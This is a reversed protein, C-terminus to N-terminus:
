SNKVFQNQKILEFGPLSITSIEHTHNSLVKEFNTYFTGTKTYKMCKKGKEKENPGEIFFNCGQRWPRPYTRIDSSIILDFILYHKIYHNLKYEKSM